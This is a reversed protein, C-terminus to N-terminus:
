LFKVGYSFETSQSLPAARVIISKTEMDTSEPRYHMTVFVTEHLAYRKSSRFGLGGRSLNVPDIVECVNDSERRIRARTKMQIRRSTRREPGSIPAEVPAVAEAEAIGKVEPVPAPPVPAPAAAAVPAPAAAAAPSAFLSLHIARESPQLGASVDEGKLARSLKELGQLYKQQNFRKGADRVTLGRVRAIESEVKAARDDAAAALTGAFAGLDFSDDPSM